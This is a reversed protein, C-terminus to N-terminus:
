HIVGRNQQLPVFVVKETDHRRRISSGADNHWCLEGLGNSSDSHGAEQIVDHALKLDMGTTSSALDAKRRIVM